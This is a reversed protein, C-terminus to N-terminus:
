KVQELLWVDKRLYGRVKLPVDNKMEPSVMIQAQGGCATLSDVLEQELEV